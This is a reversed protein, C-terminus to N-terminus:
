APRGDSRRVRTAPAVAPKGSLGYRVFDTMDDFLGDTSPVAPAPLFLDGLAAAGAVLTVLLRIQTEIRESPHWGHARSDETIARLELFMRRLARSIEARMSDDLESQAAVMTLLTRGKGARLTLRGAGWATATEFAIDAHLDARQREPPGALRWRVARAESLTAALVDRVAEDLRVPQPEPSLGNAELATASLADDLMTELRRGAEAMRTLLDDTREPPLRHERLISTFGNISTLPSRLDHSVDALFRQQRERAHELRGLMRNM